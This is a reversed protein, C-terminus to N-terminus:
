RGVKLCGGAEQTCGGQKVGRSEGAKGGICVWRGVKIYGYAGRGRHLCGGVGAQVWSVRVWKGGQGQHVCGGAENCAGVQGKCVDTLGGAIVWRGGAGRCAGLQRVGEACVWRGGWASM